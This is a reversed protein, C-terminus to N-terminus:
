EDKTVWAELDQTHLYSLFATVALCWMFLYFIIKPYAEGIIAIPWPVVEAFLNEEMVERLYAKSFFSYESGTTLEKDKQLIYKRIRATEDDWLEQKFDPGDDIRVRTRAM